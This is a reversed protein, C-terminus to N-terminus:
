VMANVPSLPKWSIFAAIGGMPEVSTVSLAVMGPIADPALVCISSTVPSFGYKRLTLGFSGVWGVQSLKSRRSNLTVSAGFAGGVINPAGNGALAASAGPKM